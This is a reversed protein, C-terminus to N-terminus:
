GRAALLAFKESYIYETKTNKYPDITSFLERSYLKLLAKPERTISHYKSIEQKIAALRRREKKRQIQLGHISSGTPHQQLL